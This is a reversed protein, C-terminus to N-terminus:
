PLGLCSLIRLGGDMLGLNVKGTTYILGKSLLCRTQMIILLAEREEKKEKRDLTGKHALSLSHFSARGSQSSKPIFCDGLFSHLFHVITLHPPCNRLASLSVSTSWCLSVSPSFYTCIPFLSLFIELITKRGGPTPKPTCIPLSPANKPDVESNTTVYHVLHCNLLGAKFVIVFFSNMGYITLIPDYFSTFLTCIIKVVVNSWNM